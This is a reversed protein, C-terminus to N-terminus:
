RFEYLCDPHQCKYMVTGGEDAGRTNKEEYFVDTGPRGERLCKKCKVESKSGFIDKQTKIEDKFDLSKGFMEGISMTGVFTPDLTLFREPDKPIHRCLARIKECYESNEFVFYNEYVAQEIAWLIVEVRQHDQCSKFAEQLKTRCVQRMLFGSSPNLSKIDELAKQVIHQFSLVQEQKKSLTKPVMEIQKKSLTKPVMEIMKVTSKKPTTPTIDKPSNQSSSLKANKKPTTSKRPSVVDEKRPRKTLPQHDDEETFDFEELRNERKTKLVKKSAPEM